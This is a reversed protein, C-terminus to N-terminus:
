VFKMQQTDELSDSLELLDKVAQSYGRKVACM